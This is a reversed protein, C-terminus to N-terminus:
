PVFYVEVLATGATGDVATLHVTYGGPPLEVLYAADKSGRPLAFAGVSAAVNEVEDADPRESWNDNFLFGQNSGAKYVTIFPDSLPNAVGFAALSPGVGRILVRRHMGEIVFGGIMPEVPTVVGRTSVNVAEGLDLKADEAAQVFFYGQEGILIPSTGVTFNALAVPGLVDYAYWTPLTILTKNLVEPPVAAGPPLAGLEFAKFAGASDLRGREFVQLGGNEVIVRIAFIEYLRFPAVAASAASAMLVAFGVPVFRRFCNM